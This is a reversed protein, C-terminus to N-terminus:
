LKNIKEVLQTAIVELDKNIEKYHAKKNEVNKQNVKTILGDFSAIAEDILADSEATPKGTTTMEYIYVAEIIDGLVFNIDKKLNKVSAM